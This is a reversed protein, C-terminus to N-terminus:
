RGVVLDSTFGASTIRGAYTEWKTNGFISYIVNPNKLLEPLPLSNVRGTSYCMDPM